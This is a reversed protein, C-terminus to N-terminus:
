AKAASMSGNSEESAALEAKSEAYLDQAYEVATATWSRVNENLTLYGQIARKMVPRGGRLALLGAGVMVAAGVGWGGGVTEMVDDFM